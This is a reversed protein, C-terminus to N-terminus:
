TLFQRIAICISRVTLFAQVTSFEIGQFTLLIVANLWQTLGKFRMYILLSFEGHFMREVSIM